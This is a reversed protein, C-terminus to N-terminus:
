PDKVEIEIVSADSRAGEADTVELSARYTGAVNPMLAAEQSSADSLLWLSGAPAATLSWAYTVAGGEPDCSALGDLTITEGTVGQAVAVPVAAPRGNGPASRVGFRPGATRITVEGGEGEISCAGDLTAVEFPVGSVSVSAPTPNLFWEVVGDRRSEVFRGDGVIEALQLDDGREAYRLQEEGSISEVLLLRGDSQIRAEGRWDGDVIVISGDSTVANPAIAGSAYPFVISLARVDSGERSADWATHSSRAVDGNDDRGGPEHFSTDQSYTMAGEPSVAAVLVSAKSRHWRAESGTREFTGTNPADGELNDGGGNGHFRWSFRHNAGSETSVARDAIVLYRNSAFVFRREIEAGGPADYAGAGYRTRVTVGDAHSSDFADSLYAMGDAPPPQNPAFLGWENSAALYDVPGRGDVLIMNHDQPRNVDFRRWFELYGPDLMLREGYASLMFSAPDAHEHSDPFVPDGEPSRGFSAAVDHEGLVVAVVDDPDWGGRFVAVGGEQHIRTPSGAPARPIVSDDFALIADPALEINGDTPFPYPAALYQSERNLGWAWYMESLDGDAVPALGYYHRRGVNGDDYSALSSDPLMVDLMWQHALLIRPDRWPSLRVLGDAVPWPEGQVWGDWARAMPLLNQSTYRFYFPGESYVGDETIHSYELIRDLLEFGYVAWASPDQYELARTDDPDPEHEALVMAATIFACGVKSRHNNQHLRPFGTATDPDRYNEYLASTLAIVNSRVIAEDGPAMQYGAGLLTDYASAWMIIEESTTIDRDWGGVPPPVAIRSETYMGKLLATAEAGVAERDSETPFRQPEDEIITADLMYFVALSRAANAKIREPGRLHDEPDQVRGESVRRGMTQVWSRYPEAALKERLADLDTDRGLGRPRTLSAQAPPWSLEFPVGGDPNGADPLSADPLGADPAGNSATSCGPTLLAACLLAPLLSASATTNGTM